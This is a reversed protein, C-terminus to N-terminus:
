RPARRTRRAPRRRRGQHLQLVRAPGPPRWWIISRAGLYLLNQPVFGGLKANEGLARALDACAERTAPVGASLRLNRQSGQVRHLTAYARGPAEQRREFQDFSITGGNAEYVLVARTLQWTPREAIQITAISEEPKM